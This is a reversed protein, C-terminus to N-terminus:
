AYRIMMFGLNTGAVTMTGSIANKPRSMLYGSLEAVVQGDASHMKLSLGHPVPGGPRGTVEYRESGVSCSGRLSGFEGEFDLVITAPEGDLYATWSGAFDNGRVVGARYTGLAPRTARTGFFGFPVDRWVSSGAIARRSRTFLYGEYHQEPMWNFDHITVHIAHPGATGAEGTVRFDEGFRDSTFTGTLQRGGAVALVLTGLWGDDCVYWRGAFEETRIEPSQQAAFMRM